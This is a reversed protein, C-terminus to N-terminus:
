AVLLEPPKPSNPSNPSGHINVLRQTHIRPQQHLTTTTGNINLNFSLSDYTLNKAKYINQKSDNLV